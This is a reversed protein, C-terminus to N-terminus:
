YHQSVSPLYIGVIAQRKGGVMERGSWRSESVEGPFIDRMREWFKQVSVAKTGSERCWWSYRSYVDARTNKVNEATNIGDDEVWAAVSNSQKKGTIHAERMIQPLEPFHERALLRQLGAICWNLVGSLEADIITEGLLPRVKIPKVNFPFILWRRWFGTSHDSIAPLTNANVIWKATPRLTLPDQYKRDIQIMDGSILTKLRQEDVRQPTEDVCVLSASQLGALKFGDLGDLSLAVTQRHLAQMIQAFTGKGTGGEGVLWAALQHRTDGLLTYGAYEQLFARVEQDPLAEELFEDFKPCQAFPDYDCNLVYNIGHDPSAPTLTTRQNEVSVYGSLTPILTSNAKKLEEGNLIATAAASRATKEHAKEPNRQSIFQLAERELELNSVSQWHTGEWHYGVGDKVAFQKEQHQVHEAFRLQVSKEEIKASM